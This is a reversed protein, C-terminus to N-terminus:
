DMRTYPYVPTRHHINVLIEVEAIAEKPLEKRVLSVDEVM